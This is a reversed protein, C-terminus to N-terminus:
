HQQYASLVLEQLAANLTTEIILGSKYLNYTTGETKNIEDIIGLLDQRIMEIFYNATGQTSLNAYDLGLPIQKLSDKLSEELFGYRVMQELVVNRRSFANGPNLRPNYYTNAKLMGILVAGEAVSVNEASKNFYRQAASEIGFVEEGFPVTNLYLQLIDEKSYIHELRNALIIEKIKNVPTSLLGLDSRGYMNKALQRTITSGGGAEDQRLIISKVLM